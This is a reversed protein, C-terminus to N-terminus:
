KKDGWRRKQKVVSSVNEEPKVKLVSKDVIPPCNNTISTTNTVSSLNTIVNNPPCSRTVKISATNSVTEGVDVNPLAVYFDFLVSPAFDIPSNLNLGNDSLIAIVEETGDVSESNDSKYTPISLTENGCDFDAINEATILETPDSGEFADTLITNITCTNVVVAQTFTETITTSGIVVSCESLNYTDKTYNLVLVLPSDNIVGGPLVTSDSLNVSKKDPKLTFTGSALPPSNSNNYYLNYTYVKPYSICPITVNITWDIRCITVQPNQVAELTYHGVLISQDDRTCCLSECTKCLCWQESPTCLINGSLSIDIKNCSPVISTTNSKVTQNDCDQGDPVDPCCDVVTTTTVPCLKATNYIPKGCNVTTFPGYTNSLCISSSDTINDIVGGNDCVKWEKVDCKSCFGNLPVYITSSGASTIVKVLVRYSCDANILDADIGGSIFVKQCEQSELTGFNCIDQRADDDDLSHYDTDGPCKEQVITVLKSVSVCKDCHNCLQLDLAFIKKEGFKNATIVYDATISDGDVVCVEVHTCCKDAVATPTVADINKEKCDDSSTTSRCGNTSTPKHDNDNDHCVKICKKLTWCPCTDFTKKCLVVIDVCGDCGCGHQGCKLCEDLEM